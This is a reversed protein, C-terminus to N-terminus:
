SQQARFRYTKETPVCLSNERDRGKQTQFAPHRTELFQLRQKLNGTTKQGRRVDHRRNSRQLRLLFGATLAMWEAYNLDVCLYEASQTLYGQAPTSTPMDEGLDVGMLM